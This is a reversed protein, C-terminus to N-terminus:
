KAASASLYMLAHMGPPVRTQVDGGSAIEDFFSQRSLLREAGADPFDQPGDDLETSIVPRFTRRPVAVFRNDLVAKSTGTLYRESWPSSGREINLGPDQSHTVSEHVADDFPRVHEYELPASAPAPAASPAPVPITTTESVPAAAPAARPVLPIAGLSARQLDMRRELHHTNIYVLFALCGAVVATSYRREGVLVGLGLAAALGSIRKLDDRAM